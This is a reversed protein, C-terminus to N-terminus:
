FFASSKPQNWIQHLFHMSCDQFMKDYCVSLLSNFDNPGCKTYESAVQLPEGLCFM